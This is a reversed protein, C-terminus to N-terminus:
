AGEDTLDHTPSSEGGDAEVRTVSILPLGLDRLQHLLGHLAAQDVVVGELLTVGDHATLAMGEFHRSWRADLRGELRIEYWGSGGPRGSRTTDM